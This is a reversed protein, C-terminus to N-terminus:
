MKSGIVSLMKDIQEDTPPIKGIKVDARIEKELIIMTASHDELSIFLNNRLHPIVGLINTDEASQSSANITKKKYWLVRNAYRNKIYSLLYLPAQELSYLDEVKDSEETKVSILHIIFYNQQCVERQKEVLRYKKNKYNVIRDEKTNKLIESLKKDMYKEEMLIFKPKNSLDELEFSVSINARQFDKIIALKQLPPVTNVIRELLKYNSRFFAEKVFVAILTKDCMGPIKYLKETDIDYKVLEEKIHNLINKQTSANSGALSLFLIYNKMAEEPKIEIGYINKKIKILNKIAEEEINTFYIGGRSFVIEIKQPSFFFM